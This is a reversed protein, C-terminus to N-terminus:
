RMDPNIAQVSVQKFESSLRTFTKCAKACLFDTTERRMIRCAERDPCLIRIHYKGVPFGEINLAEAVWDLAENAMHICMVKKPGKQDKEKKRKYVELYRDVGNGVEVTWRSPYALLQIDTWKHKNESSM